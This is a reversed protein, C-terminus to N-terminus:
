TEPGIRKLISSAGAGSCIGSMRDKTVGEEFKVIVEGTNLAIPEQAPDLRATGKELVSTSSENEAALGPIFACLVLMLLALLLSVSKITKKM